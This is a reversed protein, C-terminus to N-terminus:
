GNQPEEVGTAPAAPTFFAMAKAIEGLGGHAGEIRGTRAKLEAEFQQKEEAIAAELIQMREGHKQRRGEIKEEELRIQAQYLEQARQFSALLEAPKMGAFELTRAVLERAKEVPIDALPLSTLLQGAQMVRAVDPDQALDAPQDALQAPAPAEEGTGEAVVPTGDPASAKQKENEDFDVFVGLAKKFISSM